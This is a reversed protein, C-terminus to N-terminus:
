PRFIARPAGLVLRGQDGFRQPVPSGHIAAAANGIMVVDLRHKALLRAILILMPEANM